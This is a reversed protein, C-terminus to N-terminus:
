FNKSELEAWGPDSCIGCSQGGEFLSCAHEDDGLWCRMWAAYLRKYEIGGASAAGMVTPTTIHDAGEYSALFAPGQAMSYSSHIMTNMFDATGTLLLAARDDPSGGGQVCVEAEVNPHTVAASAGL